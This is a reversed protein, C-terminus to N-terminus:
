NRMIRITTRGGPGGPGFQEDMMKQFAARTIKKGDVPAKVVGKDMGQTALEVATLVMEGGNIDLQLILGPLGGYIEPGASSQIDETYWAVVSRGDRTKTVAKKCLYGKVRMTDEELKWSQHPCSDEIIYKKPGMERQEIMKQAGYDKYLQDDGGGFRMRVVPRDHDEGAQDRIDEEEKINRWLSEDMSFLLEAKTVNFQPIMSKMGPDELRRYMDVKREYVIRGEKVQGYGPSFCFAGMVAISLIKKM